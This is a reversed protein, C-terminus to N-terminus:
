PAVLKAARRLQLRVSDRCEPYVLRVALQSGHALDVLCVPKPSHERGHGLRYAIEGKRFTPTFLCTVPLTEYQPEGRIRMAAAAMKGLRFPQFIGTKLYWGRVVVSEGAPVFIRGSRRVRSDQAYELSNVTGLWCTVAADFFSNNSFRITFPRFGVKASLRSDGTASRPEMLISALPPQLIEVQWPSRVDCLDNVDEGRFSGYRRWNEYVKGGDFLQDVFSQNGCIEVLRSDRHITPRKTPDEGVEAPLEATVWMLVSDIPDDRHTGMRFGVRVNRESDRLITIGCKQLRRYFMAHLFRELDPSNRGDLDSRGVSLVQRRSLCGAVECALDNVARELVVVLPNRNFVLSLDVASTRSTGRITEILRSNGDRIHAELGLRVGEGHSEERFHSSFTLGRHGFGARSIGDMELLRFIENDRSEQGLEEPQSAEIATEGRDRLISVLNRCLGEFLEQRARLGRKAEVEGRVMRNTTLMEDSLFVENSMLLENSYLWGRRITHLRSGSEDEVVARVGSMWHRGYPEFDLQLTLRLGKTAGVLVKQESLRKEVVAQISKFVDLQTTGTMSVSVLPRERRAKLLAALEDCLSIVSPYWLVMLESQRPIPYVLCVRQNDIVAAWSVGPGNAVCSQRNPSILLLNVAVLTIAGGRYWARRVAATRYKSSGTAHNTRTM